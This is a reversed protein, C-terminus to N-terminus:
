ESQPNIECNPLAKRLSEIRKATVGPCNYLHLTELQKASEFQSLSDDDLDMGNLQLFRLNPMECVFQLDLVATASSLPAGAMNALSLSELSAFSELCAAERNGITGQFDLALLRDANKSECFAQWQGLNLPGIRNLSLSKLNAIEWNVLEDLVNTLGFVTLFEM